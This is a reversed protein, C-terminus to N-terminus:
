RARVKRLSQVLNPRHSKWSQYWMMANFKDAVKMGTDDLTANTLAVHATEYSVVSTDTITMFPKTMHGDALFTGPKGELGEM